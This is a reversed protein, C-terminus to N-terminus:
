GLAKTANEGKAEFERIQAATKTDQEMSNKLVEAVFRPVEVYVGRQIIWAKGNVSVVVDDKYKNNDIFLNVVVKENYYEQDITEYPEEQVTATQQQAIRDAVMKEVMSYLETAKISITEDPLQEITSLQVGADESNEAEKLKGM